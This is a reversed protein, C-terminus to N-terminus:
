HTHHLKKYPYINHHNERINNTSPATKAYTLIILSQLSLQM